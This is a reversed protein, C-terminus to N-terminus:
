KVDKVHPCFPCLKGANSCPVERCGEKHLRRIEAKSLRIESSAM